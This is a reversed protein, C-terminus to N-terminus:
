GLGAGPASQGESLAHPRRGRQEGATTTDFNWAGYLVDGAMAIGFFALNPPELEDWDTSQGVTWRYIVGESSPTVDANVAAYIMNNQDYKSDTIVHVNGSQPLMKLVTFKPSPQSFDTWAVYAEPNGLTSIGTGIFVLDASTPNVLPTCITHAPILLDTNVFEGPVWNTDGMSLQRVRYDELVYITSEDRFTIDRLSSIGAFVTEWKQGEDATYMINPTTLDGLILATSGPAKVNVRLITGTDSTTRTLIREWQDGLTDSTSRWVSDFSNPVGNKNLSSLYLVSSQTAAPPSELAASDSLQDISTDILGIQNWGLGGNSSYSFASEDLPSEM